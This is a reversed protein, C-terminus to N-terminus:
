DKKQSYVPIVSMEMKTSRKHNRDLQYLWTLSCSKWFVSASVGVRLHELRDAFSFLLEQSGRGGQHKPQQHAAASGMQLLVHLLM